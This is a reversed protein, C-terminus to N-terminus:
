PRNCSRVHIGSSQLTGDEAVAFEGGGMVFLHEFTIQRKFM